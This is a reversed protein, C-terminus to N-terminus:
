SDTNKKKPTGNKVDKPEVVGAIVFAGLLRNVEDALEKEIKRAETPQLQGSLMGVVRAPISVAFKKFVVFFKSYDMKVEEVSIYKGAAIETKLRHLEGQSEKLAIDAEMKQERLEIEKDTRGQRGYAKESLYKIYNQITPVLDYRRVTRGDEIIKTTSIVGDQTLQQIRRVSVGFLQAIIETRYFSGRVEGNDSM